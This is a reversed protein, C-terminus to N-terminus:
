RVHKQPCPSCCLYCRFCSRAQLVKLAPRVVPSSRCERRVSSCSCQTVPLSHMAATQMYIAVLYGMPSVMKVAHLVFRIILVMMFCVGKLSVTSAIQYDYCHVIEDYPLGYINQDEGLGCKREVVVSKKFWSLTSICCVVYDPM